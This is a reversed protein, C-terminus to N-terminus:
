PCSSTKIETLVSQNQSVVDFRHMESPEVLLTMEVRDAGEGESGPLTVENVQDRFNFYYIKDENVQLSLPVASEFQLTPTESGGRVLEAIAKVECLGQTSAQQDPPLDRVSKGCGGVVAALTAIAVFLLSKWNLIKTNM